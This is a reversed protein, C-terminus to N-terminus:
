VGLEFKLNPAIPEYNEISFDDITFDYFNMSKPKFILKPTSETDVDYRQMLIEANEFHRHYIHINRQDHVFKGPEYGTAHAVMMLLAIAQIKNITSAVLYDSSRITTVLDLYQGRVQFHHMFQCPYLGETEKLDSYQFLDIIHRRGMPDKKIGDILQNMLDYRKVTAGYRQGITENGIDWNDWYSVGMERLVNLDSTQKQFIWLYELIASKWATHRLTHIPFEGKSIDFTEAKYTLYRTHAPTGDKYKPRVEFDTTDEGQNMIEFINAAFALNYGTWRKDVM